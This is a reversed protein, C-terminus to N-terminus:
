YAVKGGAMMDKPQFKFFLRETSGLNVSAPTPSSGTTQDFPPPPVFELALPTDPHAQAIAANRPFVFQFERAAGRGAVFAIPQVRDGGPGSLLTTNKVTDLTQSQWYSALRTDIEPLNSGYEVVVVIKDDFSQALYNDFATKAKGKADGSMADYHAEIEKLRIYGQRVPMASRIQATYTVEPTREGTGNDAVAASGLSRSIERMTPQRLTVTKAWPSDHLMKQCEAQSWQDFPKHEWFQKDASLGAGIFVILLVLKKM